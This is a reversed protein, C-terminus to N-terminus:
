KTKSLFVEQLDSTELLLFALKTGFHDIGRVQHLAHIEQFFGM